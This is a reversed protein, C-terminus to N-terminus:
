EFTVGKDYLDKKIHSIRNKLNLIYAYLCIFAISSVLLTLRMSAEMQLTGESNIITDPHLSQYVRPVVFVFFPMVAMAIILYVSCIRGRASSESLSSYLSLYAIYILLLIVISTERPDWNWYSGWAMKAWLSGTITTLIAFVLGIVASNYAKESLLDNPQKKILFIISAIGAYLFAFVSVMAAPVHFFIVRSTDGLIAAKPAFLFAMLIAAPMLIYVFKLAIKM